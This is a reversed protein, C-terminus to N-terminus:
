KLLEKEIDDIITDPTSAGACLGVTNFAFFSQPIDAKSEALVGPKGYKQAIALLRRTNASNKGGAIVVADVHNLLDRLANQREKTAACITQIIVLNPFFLGVAEGIETYEEESLTTQGLLATRADNNISYLKKAERRAEITNGVVKCFSTNSSQMYGMIGVIEAHNAEGAIFLCYGAQFLEEAKIQSAKVNPCTADIINIGKSYLENEIHPEIGHARIIVSCNKDLQTLEDIVHVGMKKLNELVKPNHILPGITYVSSGSALARRAEAEALEVARRVGM